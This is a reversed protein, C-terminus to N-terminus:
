NVSVLKNSNNVYLLTNDIIIPHTNMASPLKDVSELIGTLDIKLIYANKSFIILKNNALMIKKFNVSKKKTNLFKSILRNLDYSYIIKGTKINMSILLNNKSILFIYDDIVLPKIFSSFNKKHIISGTESNLVYTYRNTSIIIKDKNFLIQNSLFLNSVSTDLSQSLNVFWNINLKKADISYLSGYTNLFFLSSKGVSLNNVFENKVLTEETPIQKLINGNLKDFFFLDNNQNAAVLHNDYIKINSRFPIEYNKAWIIKNEIYDFAYLYGFNDSAYIVKDRLILNINKNKKKYKKRYFNYKSIIKNELTSFVIINGKKDSVIINENDYLPYDNIKYKTIKKSKFILKNQSEYKFNKDGNHENFFIDNWKLNNSPETTKFTFDKNIPIIDDFYKENLSISVFENFIDKKKIDEVSNQNKWIGTKNDFSCGASFIALVLIYIFKM